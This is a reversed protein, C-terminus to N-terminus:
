GPPARFLSHCACVASVKNHLGFARAIHLPQGYTLWPNLAAVEQAEGKEDDLVELPLELMADLESWYAVISEEDTCLRVVVWVPLDRLPRLAVEIDGDAAEGDTAIVVVCRRGAARLAPAEARVREVVERM